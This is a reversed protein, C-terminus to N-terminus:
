AILHENVIKAISQINKFNEPKLESDPIVFGFKREIFLVIEVISYSDVGIKSLDQDSKLTVNEDLVNDKLFKILNNEITILDM